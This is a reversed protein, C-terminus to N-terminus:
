CSVAFAALGPLLYRAAHASASTYVWAAFLATAFLAAGLLPAGDWAMRAALLAAGAVLLTWLIRSFTRAVM